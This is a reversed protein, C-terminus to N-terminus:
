KELVPLLLYSPRAATHIITQRAKVMKTETALDGGMNLNRAFAPFCSSTVAIQLRHGKKFVNGTAWMDLDYAAVQGPALLSPTKFSKRFRARIIGHCLGAVKGDPYVDQLLAVWDTDRASSSAVLHLSIPGAVILDKSLPPTSYYVLDPRRDAAGMKTEEGPTAAAAKRLNAMGGPIYPDAPDYVYRDPLESVGPAGTSLTGAGPGGAARGESHLYWKEIRAEKPPWASFSRWENRGMLFAEVPRERDVGNDVGKLWHDFWRLYLTDLDRLSQPGFDFAGIKTTTNVAHGWPGYVLRQNAHGTRVMEAYNRKTGIGDGDFWGSVHLAPLPGISKMRDNFNVRDYYGDNTSHALWEQFFPITRGLVAKDVRNLPLTMFADFKGLSNAPSQIDVSDRDKVVNAWWLDPMLFFAGYEYPINFFPDPPSVIPILCKLHPNNERAAAWQVLGLYSGGLMGVSGTSWTQAACWDVSDYGDKAELVFPHFEGESDFRGRVDEAVFVYGRKAYSTAEVANVRGYPTRQLIVPFKGEASPRYVDAALQVGDRMKIMVKREVTVAFSPKSLLPDAPTEPELLAQYGDRVEYLKQAPVSWLLVRGDSDTDIESDINGIPGPIVLAYRSTLITKGGVNRKKSGIATITMKLVVVGKPGVGDVVIMPFQQPGGKALDYAATIFSLLHPMFNGFALTHADVKTDPRPKDEITLKGTGAKITLQFKGAGPADSEISSVTGSSISTANHLVLKRGGLDISAMSEASGDAKITFSDTGADADQITVIFKGQDPKVSGDARAPPASFGIAAFIACAPGAGRALGSIMWNDGRARRM